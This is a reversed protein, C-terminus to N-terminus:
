EARIAELADVTAARRAPVYASIGAVVLFAGATSALTIPDLAGVGLLVSSLLIGVGVSVVGGLALGLGTLRIGEAVVGRLLRSPDAGLALRLGMERTRQSVSYSIIGYIGLAALALAVLGFSGLFLSSIAWLGTSEKVIDTMPRIVAPLQPDLRYLAQRLPEMLAQPTTGPTASIVLFRRRSATGVLPRFIHPRPAGTLGDWRVDGVVGLVLGTTPEDEDGYILTQGVASEGPWLQEALGRTVLIGGAGPEGDEPRFTRGSLLPIGMATLYGPGVRSSYGSFRDELPIGQGAANTYRIAFSEHNLPLHSATGVGEVGTLQQVGQVLTQFRINLVQTDESSIPDPELEATLIRDARFGVDTSMANALSRVMLGTGSVLAVAMTVEAVVLIRRGRLAKRGTGSGRSGEQLTQAITKRTATWAPALAFFLPTSLALLGVFALVRGDLSVEGVRYLDPPVVGNLLSTGLYALGVGLIGGGVALAM